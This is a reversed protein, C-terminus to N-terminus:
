TLLLYKLSVKKISDLEGLLYFSRYAKIFKPRYIAKFSAFHNKQENECSFEFELAIVRANVFVYAGTVIMM